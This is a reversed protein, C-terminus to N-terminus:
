KKNRTRRQKKKKASLGDTKNRKSHRRKFLKTIFNKKEPYYLDCDAYYFNNFPTTNYATSLSADSEISSFTMAWIPLAMNAGQGERISSFRIAPNDAGSWVGALFDPTYGIFWGDAHNQTTGTKGAITSTLAYKGRLRQATGSDVVSQLMHALQDTIDSEIINTPKAVNHKYITDGNATIISQISYPAVKNGNNALVQYAEIISSLPLTAVGLALSPVHPLSDTLGLSTCFNATPRIGSEMLLQVSVTNVSNTLAGKLTYKGGYNGDSNRPTWNNFQTYEIKENKIRDCPQHGDILAKTYIFPKFISGVQRNAQVRDYPFRVYDIGGIYSLVAGTSPKIAYFAAQLFTLAHIISDIPSILTDKYGNFTYIHTNIPQDLQEIIQDHSVHAIKLQKYRSSNKIATFTLNSKKGNKLSKTLENRLQFTLTKMHATLADQAKLQIRSDLTTNIRLGDTEINLTENHKTNYNDVIQEIEPKIKAMFYASSHQDKETRNYKLLIPSRVLSDYSSLSLHDYKTMQHLVTNRRQLAKNPNLRPNYTTPAKLMGILVAAEEIKIEQPTTSFFRECATEIGYTDEGFSVTNLYLTVIENKTYLHNLKNAIIAEKIKTIPMTLWGHNQRGYLNKVLQQSITSGGGANKQRLIITKFLVRMLSRQDIGKHKYFRTDETSILATIIHPAIDSFSVNSRNEIFYRGLLQKDSSFISSGQFNRIELLEEDNPINGFSGNAVAYYFGFLSLISALFLGGTAILLKKVIPTKIIRKISLM